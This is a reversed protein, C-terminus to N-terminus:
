TPCDPSGSLRTAGRTSYEARSMPRVAHDLVFTVAPCANVLEFAVPLQRALICLDFTLNREALHRLNARFRPLRSLEDPAVHLVRRVGVVPKDILRDLQVVFDAREPAACAVVGAILLTVDACPFM